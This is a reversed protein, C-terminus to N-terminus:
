RKKRNSQHEPVGCFGGGGPVGASSFSHGNVVAVGTGTGMTQQLQAFVGVVVGVAVGVIV